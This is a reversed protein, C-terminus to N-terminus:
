NGQYSAAPRGAGSVLCRRGVRIRGNGGGGDHPMRVQSSDTLILRAPVPILGGWGGRQLPLLLLTTGTARLRGGRCLPPRPPTPAIARAHSYVARTGASPKEM